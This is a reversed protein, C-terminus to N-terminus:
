DIEVRLTIFELRKNTSINRLSHSDGQKIRLFDGDSVNFRDENVLMEGIGKLILYYEVCDSHEHFDLQEDKELWAFNLTALRGQEQNNRILRVLHVTGNHTEEPESTLINAIIFQNDQESM